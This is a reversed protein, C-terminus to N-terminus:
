RVCPEIIMFLEYSTTAAQRAEIRNVRLHTVGTEPVLCLGVLQKDPDPESSLV